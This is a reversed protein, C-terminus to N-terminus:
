EFACALEKQQELELAAATVEAALRAGRDCRARRLEARQWAKSERSMCQGDVIASALLVAGCPDCCAIHTNSALAAARLRDRAAALQETVPPM